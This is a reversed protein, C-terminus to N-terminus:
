KEAVQTGMAADIHSDFVRQGPVLIKKTADNASQIYWEIQRRSAACELAPMIRAGGPEPALRVLFCNLKRSLRQSQKLVSSLRTSKLLDFRTYVNLQTRSKALTHGIAGGTPEGLGFCM